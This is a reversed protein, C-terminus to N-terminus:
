VLALGDFAVALADSKDVPLWQINSRLFFPNDHCSQLRFPYFVHDVAHVSIILRQHLFDADIQCSKGHTGEMHGLRIKVPRSGAVFDRYNGDGLPFANDAAETFRDCGDYSGHSKARVDHGMGIYVTDVVSILSPAVDKEKCIVDSIQCQIRFCVLSRVVIIGRRKAKDFHQRSQHLFM